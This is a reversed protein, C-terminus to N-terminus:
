SLRSMLAYKHGASNYYYTTISTIVRTDYCIKYCLTAQIRMQTVAIRSESREPALYVDHLLQGKLPALRTCNEFFNM